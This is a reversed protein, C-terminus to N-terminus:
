CCELTPNGDSPNIVSHHARLPQARDTDTTLETVDLLLLNWRESETTDYPPAECCWRAEQRWVECVKADGHARLNGGSSARRFVSYFTFVCRCKINTNLANHHLLPRLVCLANWITHLSRRDEARIMVTDGTGGTDAGPQDMMLGPHARTCWPADPPQQKLGGTQVGGNFFSM